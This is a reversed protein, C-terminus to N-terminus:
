YEDKNNRRLDDACNKIVEKSLSIIEKIGAAIGLILIFPPIIILAAGCTLIGSFRIRMKMRERVMGINSCVISRLITDSYNCELYKAVYKVGVKRYYTFIAM